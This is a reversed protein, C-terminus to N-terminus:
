SYRAVTSAVPPKAGYWQARLIPDVNGSPYAKTGSVHMVLPRPAIKADHGVLVIEVGNVIMTVSELSGGAVAEMVRVIVVFLVPGTIVITATFQWARTGQALGKMALAVSPM